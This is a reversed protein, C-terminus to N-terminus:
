RDKLREVAFATGCNGCFLFQFRHEVGIEDAVPVTRLRANEIVFRRCGHCRPSSWPRLPGAPEDFSTVM